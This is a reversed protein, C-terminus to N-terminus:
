AGYTARLHNAKDEASLPAPDGFGAGQASPIGVRPGKRLLPRDTVLQQLAADIKAVDPTGNADVLASRDLHVVDRVDGLVLDARQSLLTAFAQETQQARAQDDQQFRQQLPAMAQQVAETAARAAAQQFEALMGGFVPTDSGPPTPQPAPQNAQPAPSEPTRAARDRALRESVIRDVDAQSFTREQPSLTVPQQQGLQGPGESTLPAQQENPTTM